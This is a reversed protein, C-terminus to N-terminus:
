GMLAAYSILIGNMALFSCLFVPFYIRRDRQRAQDAHGAECNLYSWIALITSILIYIISLIHISDTLTVTESLGLTSDSQQMNVIAAFLCGVCLGTRGSALDPERPDMFFAVASILAAAYVGACLKFFSAIRARHIRLQVSISSYSQSGTKAESPNGFNSSYTTGGEQITFDGVIWDDNSLKPNFGSNSFDPTIVFEKTTGVRTELQFTIRHRDFPFNQASWPYYFTGGISTESWYLQPLGSFYSSHNPELRTQVPEFSLGNNNQVVLNSLPEYTNNPCVSWVHLNAYLSKEAFNFDRLEDVYVGMVCTAAQAPAMAAPQKMGAAQATALGAAALLALLSVMLWRWWRQQRGNM